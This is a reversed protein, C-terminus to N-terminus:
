GGKKERFIGKTKIIGIILISLLQPIFEILAFGLFKELELPTTSGESGTLFFGIPLGLLLVPWIILVIFIMAVFELFSFPQYRGSSLDIFYLILFSLFYITFTGFYWFIIYRRHTRRLIIWIILFSTIFAGLVMLWLTNMSAKDALLISRYSM